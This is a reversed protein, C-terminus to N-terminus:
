PCSTTFTDVTVNASETGSTLVWINMTNKTLVTASVDIDTVVEIPWGLLYYAGDDGRVYPCVCSTPISTGNTMAYAVQNSRVYATINAHGNDTGHIDCPDLTITAGSTFAETPKGFLINVDSNWSPPKRRRPQPAPQRGRQEFDRLCNELRKVDKESLGFLKKAM